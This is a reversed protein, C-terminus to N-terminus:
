AAEDPPEALGSPEGADTCAELRHDPRLMAEQALDEADAPSPCLMTAFRLVRVAYAEALEEPTPVLADVAEIM